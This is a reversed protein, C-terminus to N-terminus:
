YQNKDLSYVGVLGIILVYTKNVHFNTFTSRNKEKKKNLLFLKIM